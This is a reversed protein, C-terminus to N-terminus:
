GRVHIWHNSDVIERPTGEQADHVRADSLKREALQYLREMAASNSTLPMCIAAALHYVLADTFMADFLTPDTVDAVYEISVGTENCLLKSDEIRYPTGGIDWMGASMYPDRSNYGQEEWSTTLVRLCDVPLTYQHAWKHNPTAALQALTARRIAFNWPHARLLAKRRLPYQLRLIDAATSTDTDLNSIQENHGIAALALNAIETTSSASM